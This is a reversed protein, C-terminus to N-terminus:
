HDAGPLSAWRTKTGCICYHSREPRILPTHRRLHSAQKVAPVIDTHRLVTPHPQPECQVLHIDQMRPLITPLEMYLGRFCEKPFSNPTKKIISSSPAAALQANIPEKKVAFFRFFSFAFCLSNYNREDKRGKANEHHIVTIKIISIVPAL